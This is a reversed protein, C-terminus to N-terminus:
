IYRIYVDAHYSVVSSLNASLAACATALGQSTAASGVALIALPVLVTTRKM